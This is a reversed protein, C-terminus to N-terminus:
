GLVDVRKDKGIVIALRIELMYSEIVAVIYPYRCVVLACTRNVGVGKLATKVVGFCPLIGAVIWRYRNHLSRSDDLVFALVVQEVRGIVKHAAVIGNAIGYGVRRQTRPLFRDVVANYVTRGYTFVTRSVSINEVVLIVVGKINIM